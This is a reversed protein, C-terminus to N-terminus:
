CHKWAESLLIFHTCKMACASFATHPTPAHQGEGGRRGTRSVLSWSLLTLWSPIIMLQGAPTLTQADGLPPLM